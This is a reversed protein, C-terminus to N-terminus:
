VDEVAKVVEYHGKEGDIPVLKLGHREAAERVMWYSEGDPLYVSYDGREGVAATVEMWKDYFRDQSIATVDVTIRIGNEPLLTVKGIEGYHRQIREVDENTWTM